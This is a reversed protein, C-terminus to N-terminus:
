CFKFFQFLVTTAHKVDSERGGALRPSFEGFFERM